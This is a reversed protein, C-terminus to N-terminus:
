LSEKHETELWGLIFQHPFSLKTEEAKTEGADLSMSPAYYTSLLGYARLKLM